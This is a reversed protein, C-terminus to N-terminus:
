TADAAYHIEDQQIRQGMVGLLALVMWNWLALDPLVFFADVQAHALGAALAALLALALWRNAQDTAPHANRLLQKAYRLLYLLLLALWLLGAMGWGTAFELWLNHPHLLNPEDLAGLPLYAPYRWFFGNPGVGFWFYDRWLAWSTRWIILRHDLTASNTLRDGLLLWLAAIAVICLASGGLIVWRRRHRLHEWGSGLRVSPSRLSPALSARKGGLLGAGWILLGAPLGLLLAGCSATLLLAALILALGAVVFHRYRSLAYALGLGLFLSRELYFATQNPSFYPGVLRLV